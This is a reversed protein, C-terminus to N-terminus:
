VEPSAAAASMSSTTNPVLNCQRSTDNIHTKDTNLLLSHSQSNYYLCSYKIHLNLLYPKERSSHSDMCSVSAINECKVVTFNNM